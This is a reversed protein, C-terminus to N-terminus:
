YSRNSNKRRVTSFSMQAETKECATTTSSAM